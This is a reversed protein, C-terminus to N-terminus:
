YRVRAYIVYQLVRLHKREKINAFKVFPNFELFYLRAFIFRHVTFGSINEAMLTRTKVLLVIKSGNFNANKHPINRNFPPNSCKTVILTQM